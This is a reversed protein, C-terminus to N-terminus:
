YGDFDYYNELDYKALYDSVQQENWSLSEACTDRWRRFSKNGWPPMATRRFPLDAIEDPVGLDKIMKIVKAFLPTNNESDFLDDITENMVKPNHRGQLALSGVVEVLEKVTKEKQM